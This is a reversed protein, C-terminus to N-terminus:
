AKEEKEEFMKMIKGPLNAYWAIGSAVCICGIWTCSVGIKGVLSLDGYDDYMALEEGALELDLLVHRTLDVMVLLAGTFLLAFPSWKLCVNEEDKKSTKLAVYSCMVVFLGFNLGWFLAHGIARAKPTFFEAAGGLAM